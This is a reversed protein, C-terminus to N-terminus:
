REYCAQIFTNEIPAWALYVHIHPPLPYKATKRVGNRLYKPVTQEFEM